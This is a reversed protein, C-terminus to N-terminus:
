AAAYGLQGMELLREVGLCYKGFARFSLSYAAVLESVWEPMWREFKIELVTWEPHLIACPMGLPGDMRTCRQVALRSDFTIRLNGPLPSYYALRTYTILVKPRFEWRTVARNYAQVAPHWEHDLLRAGRQIADRHADDLSFRDKLVQNGLRGKIELILPNRADDYYRVRVKRRSLLGALKEHYCTLGPSDLYVSHVHYLGRGDRSHPDPRMRAALRAKLASCVNAPILYKIEYRSM